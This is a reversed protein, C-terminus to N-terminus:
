LSLSGSLPIPATAVYSQHWPSYGTRMSPGDTSRLSNYLTMRRKIASALRNLNSVFSPGKTPNNSTKNKSACVRGHRTQRASRKCNGVEFRASLSILAEHIRPLHYNRDCAHQTATTIEFKLNQTTWTLHFM